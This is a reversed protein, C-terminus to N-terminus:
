KNVLEVAQEPTLSEQMKKPIAINKGDFKLYLGFRGKLLYIEKNDGPNIAFPKSKGSQNVYEIAQQANLELIEIRQPLAISRGDYALYIGFRGNVLNVDKGEIEAVKKPLSLLMNAIKNDVQEPKVFKPLSSRIVKDTKTELYMGYPGKKLEIKSGVPFFEGLNSQEENFDEEGEIKEVLSDIKSTCKCEPYNSCSAFVGFKGARIVMHGTKCDPCSKKEQGFFHVSLDKNIVDIVETGSKGSVLDVNAHFKEWFASLLNIWNMKGSSVDDLSNELDATFSYEVYTLFFHELFSNVIRGRDSTYFKKKDLTVYKRDQLVSIIAAYTSPRGIGLEELKKVLSAESYRPPAETHHQSPNVKEMNIKESESLVPLIKNGEEDTSKDSEDKDEQYLKIFGDFVIESGTARFMFENDTSNIDVSTQNLRTSAMQCAVTRNWILEYLRLEDQSLYEAMKKPLNQISTPRIAEHAEQANKVKSKFVRPEDPLYDKGYNNNIYNRIQEISDQSLQVGDTRMYTILGVTENGLKIGEYLKQAVMMTKKTSFGLKRSAEQQLTSTIFPPYPNRVTSKRSISAVYLEKNEIRKVLDEAQKQNAISMKELKNGDVSWLKCSFKNNKQNTVDLHIQWYEEIIFKEIESERECLLRLAVSQVRGASRSGPLKRWLIPSLNFGVLYDLARRAQQANVLNMDINRPHAFAEQVSKKTIESFSVRFIEKKSLDIKHEKIAEVVHWSIAEGERDPDSALYIKEANKAAKVIKDINKESGESPAYIMKFNEEPVVSGNKSPLDRIHGYSALVEYGTGLYKNITKAKAPSEVIVLNTM